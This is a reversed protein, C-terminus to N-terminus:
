MLAHDILYKVMETNSNYFVFILLSDGNNKIKNLNICFDDYYDNNDHNQNLFELARKEFKTIEKIENKNNFNQVIAKNGNNSVFLSSIGKVNNEEDM